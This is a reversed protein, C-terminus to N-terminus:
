ERIEEHSTDRALPRGVSSANEAIPMSLNCRCGTKLPPLEIPHGLLSHEIAPL